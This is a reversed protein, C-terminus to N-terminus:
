GEKSQSTCIVTSRAEEISLEAEIMEKLRQLEKQEYGDCEELKAIAQQADGLYALVRQKPTKSGEVRYNEVRYYYFYSKRDGDATKKHTRKRRIFAM